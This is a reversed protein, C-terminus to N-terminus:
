NIEDKWNSLGYLQIIRIEMTEFEMHLGDAVEGPEVVLIHGSDSWKEDGGCGSGDALGGDDGALILAVTVSM